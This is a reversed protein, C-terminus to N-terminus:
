GASPAPPTTLDAKPRDEDPLEGTVLYIVQEAIGTARDGIRELHKAVFHLHMGATINRPDEMMYTLLGRFLSNYSHDTDLDAAIVARAKAVDRDLFAALADGLMQGVAQSMRLLAGDTGALQAHPGLQTSRKAINKAYDGCRELHACIELVSLVFRLDVASPARLAILKITALRTDAELRDLAHDGTKVQAALDRDRELCATIADRLADRAMGGIKAVSTEIAALDRDFGSVIHKDSM